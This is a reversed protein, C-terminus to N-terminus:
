ILSEFLLQRESEVDDQITTTACVQSRLYVLLPITTYFNDFYVVYNKFRPVERLLRVVINASPQLDPEGEACIENSGNYIEFKYAYGMTDCMVYFKFGWKKPKNPMYQKMYNGIKSSCMQEDVCLRSLKPVSGFNRNLSEIIPRILYLRDRNPDDRSPKKDKDNFHIIERIKEFRRRNMQKKIINVCRDEKESWYDRSNPLKYYSMYFLIGIFKRLESISFNINDIGSYKISENVIHEELSKPFLHCWVKYPTDLAKINDPLSIDGGFKVQEKKFQLNGKKWLVKEFESSKPNINVGSFESSFTSWVNIPSTQLSSTSPMLNLEESQENYINMDMDQDDNMMKVFSDHISEELEIDEDSESDQDKQLIQQMNSTGQIDNSENETDTDSEDTSNYLFEDSNCLLERVEEDTLKGKKCFRKFGSM